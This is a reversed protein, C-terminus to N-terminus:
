GADSVSALAKLWEAVKVLAEATEGDDGDAALLATREVDDCLRLYGLV